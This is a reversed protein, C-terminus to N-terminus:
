RYAEAVVPQPRTPKKLSKRREPGEGSSTKRKPKTSDFKGGGLLEAELASLSSDTDGSNRRENQQTPSIDEEPANNSQDSRRNEDQPPQPAANQNNQLNQSHQPNQAFQPNQINQPNQPNQPGNQNNFDVPGSGNSYSGRASVYGSDQRPPANGNPAYGNPQQSLPGNPYPFNGQPGNTYPGPQSNGYQQPVNPYPGPQGNGYQQPTNAGYPVNQPPGYQPAAGYPGPVPAGNGWSNNRQPGYQPAGQQLSQQYNVPPGNGYPPNVPPVYQPPYQPNGYPTPAPPGWQPPGQPGNYPQAGGYPQNQHPAYQPNVSPNPPGYANVPPGYQPNNYPANPPQAYPPNVAPGYHAHGVAANAPPGYQPPGQPGNMPPGNMPPGSMAPGNAYPANTPPGYQPQSQPGNPYANNMPPPGNRQQPNPPTPNTTPRGSLPTQSSGSQPSQHQGESQNLHPPLTEQKQVPKPSGSVGLSALFAETTDVEGAAIEGPSPAWADDAAALCPTGSRGLIPTMLAAPTGMRENSQEETDENKVRKSPPEDGSAELIIQNDVDDQEDDVEGEEEESRARKRSPELSEPEPTANAAHRAEMWAGVESLPILPGELKADTFAPDEQLYSWQPSSRISRVFEKINDKRAYRSISPVQTSWAQILPVPTSKFSASLPQALAVWEAREPEKFIHKLEWNFEEEADDNESAEGEELAMADEQDKATSTTTEVKAERPTLGTTSGTQGHPTSARSSVKSQPAVNV